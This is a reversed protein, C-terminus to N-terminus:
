QGGAAELETWRPAAKTCPNGPASALGEARLRIRIGIRIAVSAWIADPGHECQRCVPAPTQALGVIPPMRIVALMCHMSRNSKLKHQWTCPPSGIDPGQPPFCKSTGPWISM